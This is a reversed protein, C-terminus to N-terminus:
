GHREEAGDEMWASGQAKKTRRYDRYLRSVMADLKIAVCDEARGEVVDEGAEFCFRLAERLEFDEVGRVLWNRLRDRNVERCVANAQTEVARFLSQSEDLHGVECLVM